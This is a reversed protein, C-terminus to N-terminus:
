GMAKLLGETNEWWDGSRSLTWHSIQREYPVQVHSDLRGLVFPGFDYEFLLCAPKLHPEAGRMDVGPHRLNRNYQHIDVNAGFGAALRGLASEGEAAYDRSEWDDREEDRWDMVPTQWEVVKAQELQPLMAKIWELAHRFSGFRQGGYITARTLPGPRDDIQNGYAGILSLRKLTQSHRELFQIILRDDGYWTESQYGMTPERPFNEGVVEIKLEELRPWTRNPILETLVRPLGPTCVTVLRLTKLAVAHDLLERWARAAQHQQHQQFQQQSSPIESSALDNPKDLILNITTLNQFASQMMAPEALAIERGRLITAPVKDFTFTVYQNECVTNHSALVQFISAPNDFASLAYRAHHLMKGVDWQEYPSSFYPRCCNYKRWSKEVNYARCTLASQIELANSPDHAAIPCGVYSLKSCDPLLPQCVILANEMAREQSLMQQQEALDLYLAIAELLDRAGRYRIENSAHYHLLPLLQDRSRHYLRGIVRIEKIYRARAPNAIVAKFHDISARTQEIYITDFRRYLIDLMCSALDANGALRLDKLEAEDPFSDTIRALLENPLRTLPPGSAAHFKISAEM